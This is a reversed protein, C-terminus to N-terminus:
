LFVFCPAGIGSDGQILIGDKTFDGRAIRGCHDEHKSQLVAELEEYEPHIVVSGGHPFLSSSELLIPAGAAISSNDWCPLISSIDHKGSLNPFGDQELLKRALEVKSQFSHFQSM